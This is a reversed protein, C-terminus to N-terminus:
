EHAKLEMQCMSSKFKSGDKNELLWIGSRGYPSPSFTKIKIWGKPTLCGVTYPRETYPTASEINDQRWAFVFLISAFILLFFIVFYRDLLEKM